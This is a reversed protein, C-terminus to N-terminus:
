RRVGSEIRALREADARARDATARCTSCALGRRRVLCMAEHISAYERSQLAALRATRVVVDESALVSLAGREGSTTPRTATAKM